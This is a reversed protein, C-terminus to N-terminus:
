EVGFSRVKMRFETGKVVIGNVKRLNVREKYIMGAHTAYQEIGYLIEIFNSEDIQLVSITSDFILSGLSTPVHVEEYSLIEETMTNSANGNWSIRKNIPFALKHLIINEETRFAGKSTVLQTFVGLANWEFSDEKRSYRMVRQTPRDEGDFFTSVIVEKIQYQSVYVSDDTNNDNEAHVVSDVDYVVYSGTETPFYNYHLIQPVISEKKCSFFLVIFFPVALFQKHLKM